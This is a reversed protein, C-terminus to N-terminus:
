MRDKRFNILLGLGAAVAGAIFSLAIAQLIGSEGTFAEFTANSRSLILKDVFYRIVRTLLLCEAVTVFATVLAYLSRKAIVTRGLFKRDKENQIINKGNVRLICVRVYSAADPLGIAESIDSKKLDLLFNLTKIFRDNNDFVLVECYATAVRDSFRCKIYKKGNYSFLVYKELFPIGTDTSEYVVCRGEPFVFKNVGRDCPVPLVHCKLRLLMPLWETMATVYLIISALVFIGLSLEFIITDLKDYDEALAAVFTMNM